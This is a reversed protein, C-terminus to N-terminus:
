ENICVEIRYGKIESENSEKIRKGLKTKLKGKTKVVSMRKILIFSYNGCKLVLTISVCICNGCKV